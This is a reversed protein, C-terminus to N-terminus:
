GNKLIDEADSIAQKAKMIYMEADVFRISAMDYITDELPNGNNVKRIAQFAMSRIFDDNSEQKIRLLTDVLYKTMSGPYGQRETLLKRKNM